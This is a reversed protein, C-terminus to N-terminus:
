PGWMHLRFLGTMGASVMALAARSAPTLMSVLPPAQDLTRQFALAIPDIRAIMDRANPEDFLRLLDPERKGLDIFQERETGIRVGIAGRDLLLRDRLLLFDAAFDLLKSLDVRREFGQNGGTRTLAGQLAARNYVGQVM